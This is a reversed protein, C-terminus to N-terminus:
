AAWLRRSPRTDPQAGPPAAEVWSRFGALTSEAMAIEVTSRRTGCRVVVWDAPLVLREPGERVSRHQVTMGLRTLVRRPRWSLSFMRYWRLEDGTFRALGSSWGRGPLFTSLRLSLEITGKRALVTRRVFLVGLLALLALIAIGIGEVIRM